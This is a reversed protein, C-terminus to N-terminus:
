DHTARVHKIRTYAELSCIGLDVAYGSQKYGGHPMETVLPIRTNTWAMGFQLKRAIRLARGVDRAWVSAALGHNVGNPWELSQDELTQALRLEEKYGFRAPDAADAQHSQEEM